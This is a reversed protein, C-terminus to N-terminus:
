VAWLSVPECKLRVHSVGGGGATGSTTLRRGSGISRANPTGMSLVAHPRKAAGGRAYNDRKKRRDVKRRAARRHERCAVPKRGKMTEREFKGGCIRCRYFRNMM